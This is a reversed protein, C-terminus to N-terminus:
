REGTARVRHAGPRLKLTRPTFQVDYMLAQLSLQFGTM